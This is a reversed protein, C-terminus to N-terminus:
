RRLLGQCLARGVKEPLDCIKSPPLGTIGDLALMTLGHVAAHAALVAIQLEEKKNPSAAFIGALAGRYIVEELVPRASGAVPALSLPRGEEVATRVSGFMLRYRAPNEMGFNFYEVGIKLLATKPNRVGARAALM